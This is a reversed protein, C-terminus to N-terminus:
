VNRPALYVNLPQNISQNSPRGTPLLRLKGRRGVGRPINPRPPSTGLRNASLHTDSRTHFEPEAYIVFASDCVSHPSGVTSYFSPSRVSNESIWVLGTAQVADPGLSLSKRFLDPDAHRPQMTPPESKRTPVSQRNPVPVSWILCSKGSGWLTPHM